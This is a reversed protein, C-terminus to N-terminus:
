EGLGHGQDGRQGLFVGLVPNFLAQLKIQLGLEQLDVLDALDRDVTVPYM